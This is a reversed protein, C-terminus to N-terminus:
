RWFQISHVRSTEKNLIPALSNNEDKKSHSKVPRVTSNSNKPNELLGREVRGAQQHWLITRNLCAIRDCVPQISLGEKASILVTTQDHDRIERLCEFLRERGEVDLDLLPEDLLLLKPKCVLARVLRVRQQMGRSLHSLSVHIYPDVQFMTLLYKAYNKVSAPLFPNLLGNTGAAGSLVVDWVSSFMAHRDISQYDSQFPSVYRIPLRRRVKPSPALGFVRIEGDTPKILGSIVHFLITKGGGSPGILGCIKGTRLWLDIHQLLDQGNYRFVVQQLDVAPLHDRRFSREAHQESLNELLTYNM